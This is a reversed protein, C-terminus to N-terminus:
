RDNKGSSVPLLQFPKGVDTADDLKIKLDNNEQKLIKVEQKLTTIQEVAKTVKKNILSDSQKSVSDASFFNKKSQEIVSDVKDNNEVNIEPVSCGVLLTLLLLRM